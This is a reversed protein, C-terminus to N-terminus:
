PLRFSLYPSFSDDTQYTGEVKEKKDMTSTDRKKTKVLLDLATEEFENEALFLLYSVTKFERIEVKL